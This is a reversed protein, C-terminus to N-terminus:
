TEVELIVGSDDRRVEAMQQVSVQDGIKETDAAQSGLSARRRWRGGVSTSEVHM